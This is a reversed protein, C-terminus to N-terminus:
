REQGDGAVIGREKLIEVINMVTRGIEDNVIQYDYEGSRSMEVAAERLRRDIEAQSDKARRRIRTALADQSPPLLFFSALPIGSGRIQAAGQVDINLLVNRGQRLKEEVWGRPTGYLKGHVNAWELFRGERCASTFALENMFIYDVEDREGPRPVRTTASVSRVFNPLEKLLQECITTKGVGAPGSVIVLTGKGGNM